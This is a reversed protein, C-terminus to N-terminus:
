RRDARKSKRGVALAQGEDAAVPYMLEIPLCALHDAGEARRRGDLWRLGRHHIGQTKRRLALNEASSCELQVVATHGALQAAPFHRAAFYQWREGPWIPLHVM